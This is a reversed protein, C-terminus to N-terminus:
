SNNEEGHKCRELDIEYRDQLDGLQQSCTELQWTNDEIKKKTDETGEIYGYGYSYVACIVFSVITIATKGM